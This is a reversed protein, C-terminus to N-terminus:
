FSGADVQIWPSGQDKHQLAGSTGPHALAFLYKKHKRDRFLLAPYSKGDKERHFIAGTPEVTWQANLREGPDQLYVSGNPENGAVMCRGTQKHRIHYVARSGEYLPQGGEVVPELRWVGAASLPTAQRYHVQDDNEGPYARMVVKENQNALVLAVDGPTANLRNKGGIDSLAAWSLLLNIVLRQALRVSKQGSDWWAADAFSAIVHKKRPAKDSIPSLDYGTWREYETLGARAATLWYAHWDTTLVQMDVADLDGPMLTWRIQRQLAWYEYNEHRWDETVPDNRFLGCHMPQTLDQLYHIALGLAYGSAVADGANLSERFYRTGYNFANVEYNPDWDGGRNLKPNYFHASFIFGSTDKDFLGKNDADYIGQKVALVFRSDTLCWRITNRDQPRYTARMEPGSGLDANSVLTDCARNFIWLHTSHTEDLPFGEDAAWKYGFRERPELKFPSASAADRTVTIPEGEASARLYNGDTTHLRFAGIEGEVPEPVFGTRGSESNRVVDGVVEIGRRDATLTITGLDGLAVAFITAWDGRGLLVRDGDTQISHTEGESNTFSLIYANQTACCGGRKRELQKQPAAGSENDSPQV